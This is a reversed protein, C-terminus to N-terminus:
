ADLTWTYRTRSERPALGSPRPGRHVLLVPSRAAGVLARRSAGIGERRWRPSIGVVVLAADDVAALLADDTPEALLVRTEVGVVRQASLSADALLRSADRRGTARDATTGVLCLSEGTASAFWAGLELAAWDHEGGGFPVFVDGGSQATRLALLAVDAPSGDLLIGVEEPVRNGDLEPPAAGLILEVDYVRALRAADRGPQLSTFAATRAGGLSRRRENLAALAPDLATENPVLSVVILERGGKLALPRAVDLTRDIREDGPALVLVVREPGAADEAPVVVDLLPDQALIARELERLAATPEIGFEEVLRERTRRYVELADAQRGSRYLALMLQARFREHLPNEAILQELEAIVQGQQGLALEADIRQQLATLRIEDLREIAPQAFSEYALDALPEGRWLDLAQGLLEAARGPEERGADDALREFRDLDLQGPELRIVYGPTRTEIISEDALAKRLESIQRQVQTVATVPAAGSYLDDALRDVSVVRNANLLLIALTARQKPGGLRLPGQEGVVELPGLIRFDLVEASPLADIATRYRGM